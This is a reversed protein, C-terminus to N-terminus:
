KGKERKPQGAYEGNGSSLAPGGPNGCLGLTLCAMTESGPSAFVGKGNVTTDMNVESVKFLTTRGTADSEPSL